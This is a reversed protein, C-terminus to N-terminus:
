PTPAAGCCRQGARGRRLLVLQNGKDQSTERWPKQHIRQQGSTGSESLVDISSPLRKHSDQETHGPKRTALHTSISWAYEHTAPCLRATRCLDPTSRIRAAKHSLAFALAHQVTFCSSQGHDAGCGMWQAATSYCFCHNRWMPKVGAMSENLLFMQRILRTNGQLRHKSKCVAVRYGPTTKPIQKTRFQKMQPFCEEPATPVVMRSGAPHTPPSPATSSTSLTVTVTSMHTGTCPSVTSSTQGNVETDVAPSRTLLRLKHGKTHNWTGKGVMTAKSQM